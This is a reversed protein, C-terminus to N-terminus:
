WVIQTNLLRTLGRIHRTDRMEDAVADRLMVSYSTSLVQMTEDKMKALMMMPRNEASTKRNAEGQVTDPKAPM